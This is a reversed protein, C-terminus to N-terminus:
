PLRQPDSTLVEAGDVLATVQWYYPAPAGGTGSDLHASLASGADLRSIEELDQKLITVRYADANKVADWSLDVAGEATATARLGTFHASAEGRYVIEKSQWPQWLFVAVLLTAAVAAFRVFSFDFWRGRTPRPAGSAPREPAGEVHTEIFRALNMEAAVANAGAREEAHM